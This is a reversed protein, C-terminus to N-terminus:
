RIGTASRAHEGLAHGPRATLIQWGEDPRHLTCHHNRVVDLLDTSACQALRYSCLTVIRRSTFERDILEEYAMFAPWDAPTLFSTNGTIRLGSYGAALARREEELWLNMISAPVSRDVIGYWEGHDRIVLAGSRIAARADLGAAELEAEAGAADLPEATIWICRENSRLGGRFYPVLTAALDERREYFHCMHLGWPIAKLGPLGCDTLVPLASM